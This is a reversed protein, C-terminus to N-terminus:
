KPVRSVIEDQLQLANGCADKRAIVANARDHGAQAADVSVEKIEEALASGQFTEIHYDKGQKSTSFM